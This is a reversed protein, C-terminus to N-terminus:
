YSSLSKNCLAILQSYGDTYSLASIDWSYMYIIIISLCFACLSTLQHLIYMYTKSQENMSRSGCTIRIICAHELLVYNVM